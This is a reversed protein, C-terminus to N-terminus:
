AGLLGLLGLVGSMASLQGTSSGAWGFALIEEELPLQSVKSGQKYCQGLRQM